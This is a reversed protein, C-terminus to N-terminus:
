IYSCKAVYACVYLCECRCMADNDSWIVSSQCTRTDNGTLEYNSNCMFSCTDGSSLIGDDGPLCSINGNKPATLLPCPVLILHLCKISLNYLFRLNIKLTCIHKFAM